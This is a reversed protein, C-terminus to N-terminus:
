ALQRADDVFQRDDYGQGAGLTRESNKASHAQLMAIGGKTRSRHLKPSPRTSGSTRKRNDMVRAGSPVAECRWFSEKKFKRAEPDTRSGFVDHLLVKGRAGSGSSPTGRATPARRAPGPEILTGDVSFHEDTIAGTGRGSAISSALFAKAIEGEV